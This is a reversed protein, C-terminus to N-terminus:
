QNKDSINHSSKGYKEFLEDYADSTVIEGIASWIQEAVETHKQYFHYSFMLYYIKTKLPPSVKVIDKFRESESKLIADSILEIDAVGEIRKLNLKNMNQLPSTVEEVAVGMKELDDVIAFDRIAGIKGDLNTFEKGDWILPSEKHKYLVYSWGAIRRTTDVMSNVMPYVGIKMRKKQFSAHFIGDVRNTELDLLVRSWPKRKITFRVPVRQEVMRLLEITIGPNNENVTASDGLIFPPNHINSGELNVILTDAASITSVFSLGLLLIFSLLLLQTSNRRYQLNPVNMNRERM